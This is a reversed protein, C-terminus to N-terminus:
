SACEKVSVLVREVDKFDVIISTTANEFKLTSIGANCVQLTVDDVDMDFHTDELSLPMDLRVARIDNFTLDYTAERLPLDPKDNPEIAMVRMSLRRSLPKYSGNPTELDFKIRDVRVLRILFQKDLVDAHNTM